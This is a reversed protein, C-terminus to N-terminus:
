ALVGLEGVTPLMAIACPHAEACRSLSSLPVGRYRGGMTSLSHGLMEEMTRVDFVGTEVGETAYTRRLVHLGGGKEKVGAADALLDVIVSLGTAGLRLDRRNKTATVKQGLLLADTALTDRGVHRALLAAREPLYVSLALRVCRPVPIMRAKGDKGHVHLVVVGSPDVRVDGADISCLEGRRLGMGAVLTLVLRERAPWRACGAAAWMKAVGTTDLLPRHTTSVRPAPMGDMVNTEVMGAARAWALLQNTARMYTRITSQTRGEARMVRLAELVDARTLSCLDNHAETGTRALLARVQVLHAALYAPSVGVILLREASFAAHAAEVTVPVVESVPANVAFWVDVVAVAAAKIQTDDIGWGLEQVDSVEVWNRLYRVAETELASRTQDPHSFSRFLRVLLQAQLAVFTTLTLRDSGTATKTATMTPATM